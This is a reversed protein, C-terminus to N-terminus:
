RVVEATRKAARITEVTYIQPAPPPAAAVPREATPRPARCPRRPRLLRREAHGDPQGGAHWQDADARRRASQAADAHDPRGVRRALHARRGRAHRAAHRGHDADAPRRPGSGPRYQTGAALVQMNTVVVRLRTQEQQNMTMVVDVKAGPVVFGAVGIVEDVKVSIARMGPRSPRAAPRRRGRDVGGQLRHATRERGGSGAPRSEVVDEVRTYAGAVPSSQPWAVLKVDTPPSCAHGDAAGQGRGGGSYNRVEVERVPISQVQRLVLFSAAGAVLLSLASFSSDHTHKTVHFRTERDAVRTQRRM